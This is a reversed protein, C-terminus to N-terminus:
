AVISHIAGPNILQTNTLKAEQKFKLSRKDEIKKMEELRQVERPPSQLQSLLARDRQAASLLIPDPLLALM